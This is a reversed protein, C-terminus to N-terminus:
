SARILRRDRLERRQEETLFRWLAQERELDAEASESPLFQFGCLTEDGSAQAYILLSRVALRGSPLPLEATAIVPKADASAAGEATMRVRMGGTSLDVLDGHLRARSDAPLFDVPLRRAPAFVHRYNKRRNEMMQCEDVAHVERGV